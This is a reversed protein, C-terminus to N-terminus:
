EVASSLSAFAQALSAYVTALKISTERTEVLLHRRHEDSTRTFEDHADMAKRGFDRSEKVHVNVLDLVQELDIYSNSM